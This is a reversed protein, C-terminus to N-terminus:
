PSAVQFPGAQEVPLVSPRLFALVEQAAADPYEQLFCHGGGVEQVNVHPNLAALRLASARVYPYTQSGYLVRTSVGIRSLSSWLHSPYTSFIDVERSPRCKLLVDGEGEAIAHSVYAQLAADSWGKFIGRGQLSIMASHRDPWTSRRGATKRALAHHRNLGFCAALKM